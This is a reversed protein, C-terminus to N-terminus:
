SSTEFCSVLHTFRLQDKLESFEKLLSEKQLDFQMGLFSFLNENSPLKKIHFTFLGIIKLSSLSMCYIRIYDFSFM